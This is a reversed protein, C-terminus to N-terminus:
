NIATESCWTQIFLRHMSAFPLSALLELATEKAARYGQVGHELHEHKV